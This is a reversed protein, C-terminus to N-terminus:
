TQKEGKISFLQLKKNENDYNGMSICASEKGEIRPSAINYKIHHFFV